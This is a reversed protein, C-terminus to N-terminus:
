SLPSAHIASLITMSQLDKLICQVSIQSPPQMTWTMFKSRDYQITSFSAEAPEDDESAIDEEGIDDLTASTPSPFGLYQSFSRSAPRITQSELDRKEIDSGCITSGESSYSTHRGDHGPPTQPTEAGKPSAM